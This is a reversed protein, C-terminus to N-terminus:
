RRPGDRNKLWWSFASMSDDSIVHVAEDKVGAESPGVLAWSRRIYGASNQFGPEWSLGRGSPIIHAGFLGESAVPLRRTSIHM